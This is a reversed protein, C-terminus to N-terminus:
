KRQLKRRKKVYVYGGEWREMYVKNEKKPYTFIKYGGVQTQRIGTYM